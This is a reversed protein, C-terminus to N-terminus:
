KHLEEHENKGEKKKMESTIVPFVSYNQIEAMHYISAMAYESLDYDWIMSGRNRKGHYVALAFDERNARLGCPM